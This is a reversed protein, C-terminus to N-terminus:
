KVEDVKRQKQVKNARHSACHYIYCLLLNSLKGARYRRGSAMWMGQDGAEKVPNSPAQRWFRSRSLRGVFAPSLSSRFRVSFPGVRHILSFNPCSIVSRCYFNGDPNNLLRGPDFRNRSENKRSVTVWAGYCGGYCSRAPGGRTTGTNVAWVIM